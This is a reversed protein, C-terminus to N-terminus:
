ASAPWGAPPRVVGVQGVLVASAVRLGFTIEGAPVAREAWPTRLWLVATEAAEGRGWLRLRLAGDPEM